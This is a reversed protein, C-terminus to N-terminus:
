QDGISATRAGKYQTSLLGALRRTAWATSKASATGGSHIKVRRANPPPLFAM